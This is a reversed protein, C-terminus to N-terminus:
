RKKARDALRYVFRLGSWTNDIACVKNDVLGNDLGISRVVGDSLDTSVGSTRKPWAVWLAGNVELAGALEAFREAVEDPSVSFFLVVDVPADTLSVLSVGDPLPGM